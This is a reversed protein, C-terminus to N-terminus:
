EVQTCAPSTDIFGVWRSTLELLLHYYTSGYLGIIKSIHSATLRMHVDGTGDRVAAEYLEPMRSELQESKWSDVVGDLEIGIRNEIEHLVKESAEKGILPTLKSKLPTLTNTAEKYAKEFRKEGESDIADSVEQREEMCLQEAMRDISKLAGIKDQIKERYQSLEAHAQESDEGNAYAAALDDELKQIRTSSELIERELKEVKDLMKITKSM